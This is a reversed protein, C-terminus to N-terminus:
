RIINLRIVWIDHGKATYISHEQYVQGLYLGMHQRWFWRSMMIIHMPLYVVLEVREYASMKVISYILITQHVRYM